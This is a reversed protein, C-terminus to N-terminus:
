YISTWLSHCGVWAHLPLLGNTDCKFTNPQMAYALIRSECFILSLAFTTFYKNKTNILAGCRLSPLCYLTIENPVYYM